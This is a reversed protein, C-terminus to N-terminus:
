RRRSSSGSTSRSSSSSRSGSSRTSSRGSSRSVSSRSSSSGSSRSVSSGSSSSRSTNRSSSYGKSNTNRSRTSSSSGSVNSSKSNRSSPKYYTRTSTKMSKSRRSDSNSSYVRRSRQGTSKKNNNVRSKKTVGQTRKDKSGKSGRVVNNNKSKNSIRRRDLDTTRKVKKRSDGDRTIGATRLGGRTSSGSSSAFKTVKLDRDLDIGRITGLGDRTRTDTNPGRGRKVDRSRTVVARGGNNRLSTWHSKNTRYRVSSPYNNYGSGYGVGVYINGYGYPHYPPYYPYCYPDYFPDYCGYSTYFPSWYLSGYGWGWDPGYNNIVTVGQLPDDYYFEEEPYYFESSDENIAVDSSDYYYNDMQGFSEEEYDRPSFSTYCGTFTIAILALVLIRNKMQKYNLIKTLHNESKAVYEKTYISKCARNM